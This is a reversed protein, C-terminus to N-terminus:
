VNTVPKISSVNQLEGVRIRHGVEIVRDPAPVVKSTIFEFSPARRTSAGFSVYCHSTVLPCKKRRRGKNAACGCLHERHAFLTAGMPCGVALIKPSDALGPGAVGWVEAWEPWFLPGLLLCPANETAVASCLIRGYGRSHGATFPLRLFAIRTVRVLCARSEDAQQVVVAWWLLPRRSEWLGLQLLVAAMWDGVWGKILFSAHAPSAWCHALMSGVM